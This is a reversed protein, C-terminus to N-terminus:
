KTRPPELALKPHNDPLNRIRNPHLIPAPNPAPKPHRARLNPNLIYLSVKAGKRSPAGWFPVQLVWFHPTAKRPTNRVKVKYSPKWDSRNARWADMTPSPTLMGASWAISMDSLWNKHTNKKSPIAKPTPKFSVVLFVGM